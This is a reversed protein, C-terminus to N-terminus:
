IWKDPVIQKKWESFDEFTTGVQEAQHSIRYRLKTASIAGAWGIVNAAPDWV